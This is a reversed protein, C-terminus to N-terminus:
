RRGVAAIVAASAQAVQGAQRFFTPDEHDKILSGSAISGDANVVGLM